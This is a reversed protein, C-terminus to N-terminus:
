HVFAALATFVSASVVTEGGVVVIQSPALRTLEAATAPNIPLTPDVLLVPGRITGAAAAAAIADAFDYATVVYVTCGCGAPFTHASVAAATAFRDAGAYRTISPAYRSLEGLVTASVVAEGGLVVIQNPALRTLEGATSPNIPGTPDVLLVPGHITGAAAAAAIADPFNYANAVYVTCGCAAPFTHASVAAATAFRNAGAYRSVGGAGAYPVLATKVADSVVATGGLVVIAAPKLRTLEALTSPNIPLSPGVLLVPGKVTGAAAAGALADPFKYANAIYATCGCGAPFTHASVAAATAFRDPGSYRTIAYPTVSNSPASAPGTGIANTATVTFTYATGNTLGTVTCSLTSSTCTQGDPSSTVTYGMVPSGNTAPATWTVTARANGAVAVPTGPADPVPAPTVSNSPASAAGTGAANTATVTFTYATGNTLGTVTCTLAGSTWDCTKGDPSSTM